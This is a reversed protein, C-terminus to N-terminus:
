ARPTRTCASTARGTPATPRCPFPADPDTEATAAPDFLFVMQGACRLFIHRGPVESVFALGLVDRYFAKAAALDDAYLCAELVGGLTPAAIETDPM